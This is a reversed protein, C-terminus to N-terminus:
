VAFPRLAVYRCPPYRIGSVYSPILTLLSVFSIFYCVGPFIDRFERNRSKQVDKLNM